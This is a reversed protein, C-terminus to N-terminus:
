ASSGFIRLEAGWDDVLDGCATTGHAADWARGTSL